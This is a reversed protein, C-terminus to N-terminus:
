QAVPTNSLSYILANNLGRVRSYRGKSHGLGLAKDLKDRTTDPFAAAIQSVNSNPHDALFVDIMKYIPNDDTLFEHAVFKTGEIGFHLKGLVGERSKYCTLLMKQLRKGGAGAEQELLWGADANAPIDSSGRYFKSQGETSKGTHHIVVVSAGKSALNRFLQMYRRTESADQESEPHFAVLSDFVVLPHHEEVYKIIGTYDPGQPELEVNWTGWFNIQDTPKIEFRAFRELYVYLPNERDVFLVKTQTTTRGLFPEGAAVAAAAALMVSSKGSGTAGTLVTIANKPIFGEIVWEQKEERGWIPPLSNLDYYRVAAM